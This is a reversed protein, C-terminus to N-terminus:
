PVAVVDDEFLGIQQEPCPFHALVQKFQARCDCDQFHKQYGVWLNSLSLLHPPFPLSKVKGLMGWEIYEAKMLYSSLGGHSMEQCFFETAFSRFHWWLVINSMLFQPMQYEWKKRVRPFFFDYFGYSTNDLTLSAATMNLRNGLAGWLECIHRIM